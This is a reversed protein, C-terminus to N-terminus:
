SKKGSAAMCNDQAPHRPGSNPHIKMKCRPLMNTKEGLNQHTQQWETNTFQLVIGMAQEKVGIDKNHSCDCPTIKM